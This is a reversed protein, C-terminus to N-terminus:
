LGLKALKEEVKLLRAEITNDLAKQMDAKQQNSFAIMEESDESLCEQGERQKCAYHGCIKGNSDRDIWRLEAM